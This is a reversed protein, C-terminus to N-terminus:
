HAVPCRNSVLASVEHLGPIQSEFGGWIWEFGACYLWKPFTEPGDELTEDDLALNEQILRLLEPVLVTVDDFNLIGENLLGMVLEVSTIYGYRGGRGPYADHQIGYIEHIFTVFGVNSFEAATTVRQYTWPDQQGDDGVLIVRDPKKSKIVEPIILDKNTRLTRFYAGAVPFGNRALFAKHLEAMSGQFANSVYNIEVGKVNQLYAYVEPMGVFRKNIKRMNRLVGSVSRVHSVKITDDIDSILITGANASFGVFLTIFIKFM